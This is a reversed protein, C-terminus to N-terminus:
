RVDVYEVPKWDKKGTAAEKLDRLINVLSSANIDRGGLGYVYNSVKIGNTINGFLASRIEMFLPNGYGGFSICRDLVAVAKAKSLAKVIEEQPFPRFLRLKIM